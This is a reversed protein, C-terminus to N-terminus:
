KPPTLRARLQASSANGRERVTSPYLICGVATPDPLHSTLCGVLGSDAAPRRELDRAAVEAAARSSALAGAPSSEGQEVPSSAVVAALSPDAETVEAPSSDAEGAPSDAEM